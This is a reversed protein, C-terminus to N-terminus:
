EVLDQVGLAGIEGYYFLCSHLAQFPVKLGVAPSLVTLGHEDMSMIGPRDAEAEQWYTWWRTWEV